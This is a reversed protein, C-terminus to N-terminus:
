NHYPQLHPNLHTSKPRRAHRSAHSELQCFCLWVAYYIVILVIALCCVLVAMILYAELRRQRRQRQDHIGESSLPVGAFEHHHDCTLYWCLQRNLLGLFIQQLNGLQYKTELTHM